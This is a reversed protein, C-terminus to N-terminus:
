VAMECICLTTEPQILDERSLTDMRLSLQLKVGCHTGPVVLNQEQKAVEDYEFAARNFCVTVSLALGSFLLDDSALRAIRGNLLVSEEGALQLNLLLPTNREHWRQLILLAEQRTCKM